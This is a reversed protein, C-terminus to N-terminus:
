LFFFFAQSGGDPPLRLLTAHSLLLVLPAQTGAVQLRVSVVLLFFALLGDAQCGNFVSVFPANSTLTPYVRTHTVKHTTHTVKCMLKSGAM